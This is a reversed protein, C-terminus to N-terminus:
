RNRRHCAGCGRPCRAPLRTIRATGGEDVERWRRPFPPIFLFLAEPCRYKTRAAGLKRHHGVPKVYVVRCLKRRRSASDLLSRPTRRPLKRLKYPDREEAFHGQSTARDNCPAHSSFASGYRIGDLDVLRRDAFAQRQALGLPFSSSQATSLKRRAEVRRVASCRSNVSM